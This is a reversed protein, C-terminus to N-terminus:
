DLSSVLDLFILKLFLFFHFELCNSDCFQNTHSGPSTKQRSGELGAWKMGIKSLLNHTWFGYCYSRKLLFFYGSQLISPHM